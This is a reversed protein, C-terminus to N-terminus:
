EGLSRYYGESDQWISTTVGNRIEHVIFKKVNIRLELLSKWTGNDCQEVNIEWFNKGKLKVKNVVHLAIKAKGNVDKGKNWLLSKLVKNIEKVTAKPLMVVSAWYTQMALYKVLLKGVQFLLIDLIKKKERADASGFFITSKGINPKLGSAKSFEILTDRIVEVSSFDGHSTVVICWARKFFASTFGDPGPAKIDRIHFIAEKIEKGTVEGIMSLAENGDLKNIFLSDVDIILGVKNSLGLFEKFNKM